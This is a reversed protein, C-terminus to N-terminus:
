RRGRTRHAICRFAIASLRTKGEHELIHMTVKEIERQDNQSKEPPIYNFRKAKGVAEAQSHARNHEEDIGRQQRNKTDRTIGAAVYATTIQIGKVACRDFILKPAEDGAEVFLM